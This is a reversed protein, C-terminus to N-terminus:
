SKSSSQMYEIGHPTYSSLQIPSISKTVCMKQEDATSPALLPVEGHVSKINVMWASINGDSKLTETTTL